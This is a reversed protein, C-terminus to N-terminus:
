KLTRYVAMLEEDTVPTTATYYRMHGVRMFGKIDFIQVTVKQGETGM